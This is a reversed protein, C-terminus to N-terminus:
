WTLVLLAVAGIVVTVIGGSILWRGLEPVSKQLFPLLLLKMTAPRRIMLGGLLTWWGGMVILAGSMVQYWYGFSGAAPAPGLMTPYFDVFWVRRGLFIAVIIPWGLILGMLGLDGLLLTPYLLWREDEGVKGVALRIRAIVYAVAILSPAATFGIAAIFLAVASLLLLAGAVLYRIPIEGTTPDIRRLPFVLKRRTLCPDCAGRRRRPRNVPNQCAAAPAGAGRHWIRSSAAKPACENDAM